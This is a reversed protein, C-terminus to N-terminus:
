GENWGNEICFVLRDRRSSMEIGFGVESEGCGKTSCSRKEQPYLVAARDTANNGTM